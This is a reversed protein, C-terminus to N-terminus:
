IQEARKKLSRTDYLHSSPKNPKIFEQEAKKKNQAAFIAHFHLIKWCGQTEGGYSGQCYSWYEWQRETNIYLAM